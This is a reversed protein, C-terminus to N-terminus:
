RRLAHQEVHLQNAQPFVLRHLALAGAGVLGTDEGFTPLVLDIADNAALFARERLTRAAAELFERGALTIAGHVVIRAPNFLDALDALAIGLSEGSSRIVELAAENGARAQAALARVADKVGVTGADADLQADVGLARARRVIASEGAVTELCGRNGCSCITGQPDVTIHGIEGAGGHAGRYAEGNIILGAGIGTGIYILAFDSWFRGQGLVAEGVAMARVNNDVVVPAGIREALMPGFPVHEWAFSPARKVVGHEADILGVLGAGVALMAGDTYEAENLLRRLTQAVADAAWEPAYPEPTRIERRAMLHGRLNCLGIRLASVGQHVVGVIPAHEPFDLLIADAGAGEGRQRGVTCLMGGGILDRTINSIAAATLGTRQALDVRALPGQQLITRLVLERSSTTHGLRPRSTQM